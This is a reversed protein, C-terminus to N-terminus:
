HCAPIGGGLEAEASAAMEAFRDGDLCFCYESMVERIAEREEALSAM